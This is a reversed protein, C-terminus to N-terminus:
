AIVNSVNSVQPQNSDRLCGHCERAGMRSRGLESELTARGQNSARWTENKHFILYPLSGVSKLTLKIKLLDEQIGSTETQDKLVTPGRPRDIGTCPVQLRFPENCPDM